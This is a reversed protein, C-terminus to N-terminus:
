LDKTTGVRLGQMDGIVQVLIAHADTLTLKIDQIIDKIYVFGAKPDESAIVDDLGENAIFLSDEASVLLTKASNIESQITAVNEGEEDLIIIREEMREILINIRDIAAKTRTTMKGFLTKIREQRKEELKAKLQEKAAERTATKEEIKLRIDERTVKNADIREKVLTRVNIPVPNNEVQATIEKPSLIVVLLAIAIILRKM